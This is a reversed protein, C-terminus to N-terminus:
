PDGIVLNYFHLHFNINIGGRVSEAHLPALCPQLPEDTQFVMVVTKAGHSSFSGLGNGHILHVVSHSVMYWHLLLFLLLSVIHRVTSSLYLVQIFIQKYPRRTRKVRYLAPQKMVLHILCDLSKYGSIIYPDCDVLLVQSQLILSTPVMDDFSAVQYDAIYYKFQLFYRLPVVVMWQDSINSAECDSYDLLVTYKWLLHLKVSWAYCQILTGVYNGYRM